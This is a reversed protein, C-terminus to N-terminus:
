TANLRKMLSFNIQKIVGGLNRIVKIVNMFNYLLKRRPKGIYNRSLVNRVNSESQNYYEALEGITVDGIANESLMKFVPRMDAESCKDNVIKERYFDIIELLM